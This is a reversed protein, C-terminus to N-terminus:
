RGEWRQKAQELNVCHLPDEGQKLRGINDAVVRAIGDYNQRTVGAVHPTAFVNVMSLLPHDPNLPEHGFVDLGAGAITGSRLAVELDAENIVPGRSVNIVFATPKMATFLAADFLNRTQDTLVVTSVVFDADGAMSLLDSPGGIRDIPLAPDPASQPNRVLADVRMGMAALKGALARGVKGLGVILARNGFLGEGVPAGWMDQTFAALCVHIKRAVGLMLFVAHEATSEANPTVDAPVNCVFIGRRTAAPIDVGELGVGFQHIM